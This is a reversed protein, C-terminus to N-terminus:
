EHPKDVRMGPGCDGGPQPSKADPWGIARYLMGAIIIAAEANVSQRIMHNKFSQSSPDVAIPQGEEDFLEYPENSRALFEKTAFDRFEKAGAERAEALEKARETKDLDIM